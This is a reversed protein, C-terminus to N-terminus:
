IHILSLWFPAGAIFVYRFDDAAHVAEPSLCALPSLGKASPYLSLQARLADATDQTALRAALVSGAAAHTTAPTVALAEM